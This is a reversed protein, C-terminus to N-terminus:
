QKKVIAYIIVCIIFFILVYLIYLIKNKSENSINTFDEKSSIKKSFSQVALRDTICNEICQQTNHNMKECKNICISLAKKPDQTDELLEPFFHPSQVFVPAMDLHLDCESRGITKMFDNMCERWNTEANTDQLFNTSPIGAFATATETVCNNLTNIDLKENKYKEKCAKCPNLTFSM